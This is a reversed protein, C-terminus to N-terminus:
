PALGVYLYQVYTAQMEGDGFTSRLEKELLELYQPLLPGFHENTRGRAREHAMWQDVTSYIVQRLVRVRRDVFPAGYFGRFGGRFADPLPPRGSRLSAIERAERVRDTTSLLKWWFAVPRGPRVVRLIEKMAQEQDLREFCQAAIVGDFSHAPFPLREARGQVLKVNPFKSQAVALAQASPDLGTVSCGRAVLPGFSLGTGCGIDLVERGAVLGVEALVDYIESGYGRYSESAGLLTSFTEPTVAKM